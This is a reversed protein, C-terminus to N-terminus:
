RLSKLRDGLATAVRDVEDAAVEVYAGLDKGRGGAHAPATTVAYSKGVELEPAGYHGLEITGSATGAVTKLVELTYVVSESRTGKSRSESKSMKVLIVEGKTAVAQRLAEDPLLPLPRTAAPTASPQAPAALETKPPPEKSCATLVLFVGLLVITRM